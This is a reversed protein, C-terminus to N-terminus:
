GTSTPSRRTRPRASATRAPPCAASRRSRRRSRRARCCAASAPSPARACSSRSRACPRRRSASACGSAPQLPRERRPLRLLRHRDALHARRRPPPTRSAARAPTRCAAPSSRAATSRRSRAPSLSGYSMGSMNVLSAPRFAHRRAIAPASSRAPRSATARHRRRARRRGARARSRRTSSSSCARSPRWRTTPASGSSTRSARPPRTSGAGSTARSRGSRTTPPSSTSACSPASRRSRTASTASSRSTACSRTGASCSTTAWSVRSRPPPPVRALAISCPWPGQSRRGPDASLAMPADERRCQPLHAAVLVRGHPCRRVSREEQPRPPSSAAGVASLAARSLQPFQAAYGHPARPLRLPPRWLCRAQPGVERTGAGRRICARNYRKSSRRRTVEIRFTGGSPNGNFLNREFSDLTAPDLRHAPSRAPRARASAGRARRRM